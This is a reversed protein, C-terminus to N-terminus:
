AVVDRRASAAAIRGIRARHWGAGHLLAAVTRSRKFLWHANSEWSFGIGGQAQIGSASTLKAAAAAGAKALSAARPLREAEADAVWAAGYTLSRARETELLMEACRHAVAQFAGVPTGFQERDKVYAVTDDLGRQCVGVLEAALLVEAVDIAADGDGPMPEGGHGIVSAYAATRDIGDIASAEFDEGALLTAAGDEVLVVVDAGVADPVLEASGNRVVAITASATGAAIAPLWRERQAPSGAIAIAQAAALTSALRRPAGAYGLQEVLVALEVVGLGLGDHEDPIALGAWGLAVLEPWLLEPSPAPDSRERADEFFSQDALFEKASRQIDLQDDTLTFDM